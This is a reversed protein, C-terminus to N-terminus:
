ETCPVMQRLVQSPPLAFEAAEMGTSYLAALGHSPPFFSDVEARAEALAATELGGSVWVRDLQGALAAMVGPNRHGLWATGHASFLDIYSRGNEDFLLDNEGRAIRLRHM